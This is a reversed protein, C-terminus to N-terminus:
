PLLETVGSHVDTNQEDRRGDEADHNRRQDNHHLLLRQSRLVDDEVDDPQKVRCLENRIGEDDQEEVRSDSSHRQLLEACDFTGDLVMHLQVRIIRNEGKNHYWFLYLHLLCSHSEIGM